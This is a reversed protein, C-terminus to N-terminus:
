IIGKEKLYKYGDISKFFRERRLAKGRADFEEYYHLVWPKKGKTSRVKGSNHRRLGPVKCNLTKATPAGKPLVAANAVPMVMHRGSQWEETNQPVNQSHLHIRKYRKM